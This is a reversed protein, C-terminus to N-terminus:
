KASAGDVQILGSHFSVQEGTDFSRLIKLGAALSVAAAAAAATAIFTARM